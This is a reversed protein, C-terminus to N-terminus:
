GALTAYVVLNDLYEGQTRDYTGGCTILRLAPPGTTAYVQSDPFADKEYSRLARVTFALETHDDRRVTIRDGPRLSSLGYFAAPGTASDVHGVFVAAGPDGPRPGDSWWGVDTPDGPAALTGDQQVRLGTLPKDLGISAIRIRQPPAAPTAETTTDDSGPQDPVEGIDVDRVAHTTPALLAWTGAGGLGIGTAVAVAAIIRRRRKPQHGQDRRPRGSESASPPRGTTAPGTM